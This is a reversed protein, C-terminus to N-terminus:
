TRRGAELHRVYVQDAERIHHDLWGRLFTVLDQHVARGKTRQYQIDRIQLILELHQNAHAIRDPFEADKMLSEETQCHRITHQALFALWADVKVEPAGSEIAEALSGLADFLERHQADILDLGTEFPEPWRVFPM